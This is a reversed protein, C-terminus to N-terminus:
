APDAEGAEEAAAEAMEPDAGEEKSDDQDGRLVAHLEDIVQQGEVAAQEAADQVLEELSQVAADLLLVSVEITASM